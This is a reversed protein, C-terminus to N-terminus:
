KHRDISVELRFHYRTTATDVQPAIFKANLSVRVAQRDSIRASLPFIVVKYSKIAVAGPLESEPPPSPEPDPRNKRLM